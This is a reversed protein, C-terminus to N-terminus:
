QKVKHHWEDSATLKVFNVLLGFPKFLFGNNEVPSLDDKCYIVEVLLTVGMSVEFQFVYHEIFCSVQLDDVVSKSLHYLVILVSFRVTASRFIEGWLHDRLLAM